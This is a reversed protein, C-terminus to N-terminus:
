LNKLFVQSAKRPNPFTCSCVQSVVLLLQGQVHGGVRGTRREQFLFLSCTNAKSGEKEESAMM